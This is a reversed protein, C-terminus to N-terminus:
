EDNALAEARSPEPRPTESVRAKRPAPKTEDRATADAKRALAQDLLESTRAVRHLESEWISDRTPVPVYVPPPADSLPPETNQRRSPQPRAAPAPTTQASEANPAANGPAAQDLRLPRAPKASAPQLPQTANSSDSKADPKNQPLSGLHFVTGAPVIPVVGNRSQVYDSRPFVAFVGGHARVFFRKGDLEVEYVRDFNAPQRLDTPLTRGPGSLPGVDGVGPDVPKLTPKESPRSPPTAAAATSVTFGLFGVLLVRASRSTRRDLLQPHLNIM